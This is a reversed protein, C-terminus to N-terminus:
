SACAKRHSPYNGQARAQEESMYAGVKTKGYYRTGACHYTRSAINVWVRGASQGATTSTSGGGARKARSAPLDIQRANSAPTLTATESGTTDMPNPVTLAQLPLTPRAPQMSQPRAAACVTLLLSFALARSHTRM